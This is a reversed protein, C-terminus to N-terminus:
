LCQCTPCIYTGRGAVRSKQIPGCCRPCQKGRRNFVQLEDKFTGIKSQQYSFDIITTGKLKIARQLIEVIAQHLSKVQEMTVRDSHCLPHISAAWLSEDVYINGLGAIFSQDLLLAKIQRHCSLLSQTLWEKTFDAGLPEIGLKRELPALDHLIQIRGFKRMDQFVLYDGRDLEFWATVHKLEVPNSDQVFLKGTMRLHIVLNEGGSLSFILFKGRRSINEIQKGTIRLQVESLSLGSLVKEWPASIQVITRDVVKSILSRVVTEVEPLEPM